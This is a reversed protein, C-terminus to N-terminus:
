AFTLYNIIVPFANPNFVIFSDILNRSKGTPDDETATVAYLQGINKWQNHKTLYTAYGFLGIVEHKSVQAYMKNLEFREFPYESGTWLSEDNTSTDVILSSDTQKCVNHYHPKICSNISVSTNEQETYDTWDSLFDYSSDLPRTAWSKYNEVEYQSCYTDVVDYVVRIYYPLFNKTEKRTYFDEVRDTLHGIKLSLQYDQISDANYQPYTAVLVVGKMAGNRYKIPPVFQSVDEQLFANFFYKTDICFPMESAILDQNSDGISCDGILKRCRKVYVRGQYSAQSSAVTDSYEIPEDYSETIEVSGFLEQDLVTIIEIQTIWFEFGTETGTLYVYGNEYSIELPIKAQEFLSQCTEIFTIGSEPDGSATVCKYINRGSLHVYRIHFRLTSYVDWNEVSLIKEGIKGYAKRTYSEGFAPGKVYVIGYPEIIKMDRTYQTCPVHVEDLGISSLVESNTSIQGSEDVIDFSMEDASDTNCLLNTYIYSKTPNSYYTGFLDTAM